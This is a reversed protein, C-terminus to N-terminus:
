SNLAETEEGTFHPYNQLATTLILHSVTDLVAKQSERTACRPFKWTGRPHGFFDM